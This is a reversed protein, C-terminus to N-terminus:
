CCKSKKKNKLDDLRKGKTVNKSKKGILDKTALLFADHVQHSSLASTELYKMGHAEAFRKGMDESVQISDQRDFKNGLLLRVSGESYRNIEDLWDKVHDFSERNTKDFVVM